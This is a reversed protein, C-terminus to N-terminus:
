ALGAFLSFTGASVCGFCQVDGHVPHSSPGRPSQRPQRRRRSPSRPRHNKPGILLRRIRQSTWRWNQASPRRTRASADTLQRYRVTGAGAASLAIQQLPRAPPLPLALEGDAVKQGLDGLNEYFYTPAVVSHQLDSAALQQEIQWKSEFHPVGTHQDASAVSAFV